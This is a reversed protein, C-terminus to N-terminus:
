KFMWFEAQTEETEENKVISLVDGNKLTVINTVTKDDSGTDVKITRTVEAKDDYVFCNFGDASVDNKFIVANGNVLPSVLLNKNRFETPLVVSINCYNELASYLMTRYAGDGKQLVLVRNTGLGAITVDTCSETLTSSTQKTLSSDNIDYKFVDLLKDDDKNIGIVYIGSSIQAVKNMTASDSLLETVMEDGMTFKDTYPDFTFPTLVLYGDDNKTQVLGKTKTLLKFTFESDNELVNEIHKSILINKKDLGYLSVKGTNIDPIPTSYTFMEETNFSRNLDFSYTEENYITNSVKEFTEEYTRNPNYAVIEDTDRTTLIILKKSIEKEGSSKTYEVDLDLIYEKDFDLSNDIFIVNDKIECYSIISGSRNIIKAAKATVGIYTTSVLRLTNVYTPDLDKTNGVVKFYANKLNLVETVPASITSQTGTHIITIRIDDLESLDIDDNTVAIINNTERLDVYKTLLTEGLSNEITLITSVYGVNTKVPTLTFSLEENDKYVVDAVYPTDIYFKPALYENVNSEENFVPKPGIWNTNNLDNGDEDELKRLAKIYWIEGTPILKDVEWTLLAEESEDLEEEINEFKEDRALVWTTKTHNVESDEPWKPINYIM